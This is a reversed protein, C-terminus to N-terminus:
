KAYNSKSNQYEIEMILHSGLSHIVGLMQSLCIEIELVMGTDYNCIYEALLLM